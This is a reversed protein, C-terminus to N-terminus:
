GNAENTESEKNIILLENQINYLCDYAQSISLSDINISLIEEMLSKIKENNIYNTPPITKGNEFSVIKAKYPTADLLKLYKPLSNSPFGCKVISNNLPSLKLKLLNSALKADEDIFILFLGSKFLFLTNKEYDPSSKLELYKKYIKSM